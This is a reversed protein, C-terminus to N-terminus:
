SSPSSQYVAAGLEALGPDAAHGLAPVGFLREISKLLSFDNLTSAVRAGHHVFPSILLAGVVSEAPGGAGGTAPAASATDFTIVILGHSHYEPLATIQEVVGKVFSDAPAVASAAGSPLCPDSAGDECAGPIIWSLNPVGSPAKLDTAFQSFDVVDSACAGPELLSDFYVFPNRALVYDAGSVPAATSVVEGLAPHVCTAASASASPSMGQAYARWKLGATSVEGALTQVPPPYVCGPGAALGTKSSFTEAPVATYTSCNAETAANPAQGSLLAIENALESRGVLKYNTLLAGEPVLETDLYPYSAPKELAQAFSGQSLAVVWVHDIPPKPAPKHEGAPSSHQGGESGSSPASTGEGGTSVPTTAAAPSPKRRHRRRRKHVPEASAVAAAEATSSSATSSSSSAGGTSGTSAASARVQALLSPVIGALAASASGGHDPGIAAGAAIGIALVGAAMAASLPRSPRRGGPRERSARDGPTMQSLVGASSGYRRWFASFDLRPAGRRLGCNLCYRQDEALAANCTTCREAGAAHAQGRTDL